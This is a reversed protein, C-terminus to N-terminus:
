GNWLQRTAQMACDMVAISNAPPKPGLWPTGETIRLWRLSDHPLTLIVWKKQPKNQTLSQPADLL